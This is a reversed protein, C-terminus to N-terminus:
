SAIFNKIYVESTFEDSKLGYGEFHGESGLKDPVLEVEGYVNFVKDAREYDKAPYLDAEPASATPVM